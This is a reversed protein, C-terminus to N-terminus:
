LDTGRERKAIFRVDDCSDRHLRQQIASPAEPQREELCAAIQAVTWRKAPDLRLCNEIIKAFPQSIGDRARPQENQQVDWDPLRREPGRKADDWSGYTLLRQFRERRRKQRITPPRQRASMGEGPVTLLRM